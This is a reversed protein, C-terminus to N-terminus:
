EIEFRLRANGLHIEDGPQLHVGRGGSPADIRRGDRFISTGRQSSVDNLRFRGSAPEWVINAHERSVTTEEEAFAVDNRRRLSGSDSVIEKMRGINVRDREIQFTQVDSQGRLVILRAPPRTGVAKLQPARKKLLYEIEFPQMETAAADQIRITVTLDKVAAGADTLLERIDRELLDGEVFASEYLVRLDSGSARLCVEIHNFPFVYQGDGRPEVRGAIDNLIERRIELLQPQQPGGSIRGAWRRVIEAIFRDLEELSKM